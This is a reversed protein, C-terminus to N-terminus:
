PHLRLMDLPSAVRVLAFRDSGSVFLSCSGTVRVFMGESVGNGWFEGVVKVGSSGMGSDRGTGDDVTIWSHDPAIATVRGCITVDLGINNPGLSGVCGPQLGLSAGGGLARTGVHLSGPTVSQATSIVHILKIVREGDSTASAEGLLSVDFGRTPGSGLVQVGTSRDHTEVNFASSHNRMAALDSVIVREGDAVSKSEALSVTQATTGVRINDICFSYVAAPDNDSYLDVREFPDDASIIGLFYLDNGESITRHPTTASYADFGHSNYAHMKWFPLAPDGTPSPNGILYLGFAYVPCDFEFVIRDGNGALFQGQSGEAGVSNPSTSASYDSTTVPALQLLSTGDSALGEAGISLMGFSTAESGAPLSDFYENLRFGYSQFALNFASYTTYATAAQSQAALLLLGLVVWARATIRM